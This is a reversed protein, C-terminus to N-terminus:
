PPPKPNQESRVGSARQDLPDQLRECRGRRETDPAPASADDGHSQGSHKHTPHNHPHPRHTLTRGLQQLLVGLRHPRSVVTRCAPFDLTLPDAHHVRVALGEGLPLSRM